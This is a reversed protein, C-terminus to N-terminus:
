FRGVVQRLLWLLSAISLGVPIMVALMVLPVSWALAALEFPAVLVSRWRRPQVLRSVDLVDAPVRVFVPRIGTGIEHRLQGVLTTMIEEIWEQRNV